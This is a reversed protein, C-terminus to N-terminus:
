HLISKITGTSSHGYWTSFSWVDPLTERTSSELIFRIVPQLKSLRVSTQTCPVTYRAIRIRREIGLRLQHNSCPLTHKRLETVLGIHLAVKIGFSSRGPKMTVGVRRISLNDSISSSSSKASQLTATFATLYKCSLPQFKQVNGTKTSM